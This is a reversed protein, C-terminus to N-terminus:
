KGSQDDGVKKANVVFGPLDHSFNKYRYKQQAIKNGKEDSLLLGKNEEISLSWPGDFTLQMGNAAAVKFEFRMNDKESKHSVQIHVFREEAAATQMYLSFSVFLGFIIKKGLM